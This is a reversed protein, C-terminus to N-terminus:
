RGTMQKKKFGSSIVTVFYLKISQNISQGQLMQLQELFMVFAQPSTPIPMSTISQAMLFIKPWIIAVM